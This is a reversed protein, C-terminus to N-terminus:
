LNEDLKECHNKVHIHPIDPTPGHIAHHQIDHTTTHTHHVSHTHTCPKPSPVSHKDLTSVLRM